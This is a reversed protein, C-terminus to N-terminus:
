AFLGKPIPKPPGVKRTAEAAAHAALAAIAVDHMGIRSAAHFATLHLPRPQDQLPPQFHYRLVTELDRSKAVDDIRMIHVHTVGYAEARPWKEHGGGLLRVALDDAIGTYLAYDLNLETRDARAMVYNGPGDLLRRQSWTLRQGVPLMVAEVGLWRCTLM